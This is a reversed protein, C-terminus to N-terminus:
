KSEKVIMIGKFGAQAAAKAVDELASDLSLWHWESADFLGEFAAWFEEALALRLGKSMAWHLFVTEPRWGSFVSYKSLGKLLAMGEWQDDEKYPWNSKLLAAVGWTGGWNELGPTADCWADFLDQPHMCAIALARKKRKRAVRTITGAVRPDDLDFVKDNYPM